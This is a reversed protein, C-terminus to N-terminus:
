EEKNQQQMMQHQLEHDPPLIPGDNNQYSNLDSKVMPSPPTKSSNGNNNNKFRLTEILSLLLKKSSEDLNETLKSNNNMMEKVITPMTSNLAMQARPNESLRFYCKIIHKLLRTSPKLLQSEVMNNLVTSVAFFREATMCLYTLGNEDLLIKQIIFTAVTQSLDTGREMIRLCLPIIETQLLFSIVDPDDVKM